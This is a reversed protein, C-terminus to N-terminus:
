QFDAPEAKDAQGSQGVVIQEVRLRAAELRAQCHAKLTAGRQYLGIAEELPAEGHELREVISELEKLAAEFSLQAVGQTPDAPTDTM